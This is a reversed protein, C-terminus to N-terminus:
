LSSARVSLYCLCLNCTHGTPKSICAACCVGLTHTSVRHVSRRYPRFKTNAM